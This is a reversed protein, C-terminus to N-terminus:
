RRDEEARSPVLGPLSFSPQRPQSMLLSVLAKTLKSSEPLPVPALAQAMPARSRIQENLAKIEKRTLMEGLKRATTGAAAIPISAGASSPAALMHILASLGDSVGLKGVKRLANRAASGLVIRDKAEIEDPKLGRNPIKDIEQRLTNEINSGSGTKGARRDAMIRKFDATQAASGAAYNANATRLEPSLADLFDDVRGIAIRAAKADSTPRFDPGVQKASEGFATRAARLDDVSMSTIPGIGPGGPQFGEPVMRQLEAFTGPASGHTPRFGKTMLQNEIGASLNAVDPPLIQISKVAPSEWVDVAAQKLDKAAPVPAPGTRIGTPSAARPAVAMMAQDVGPRFDEYMQRPDDKAAVEPNIVGGITHSTKALARGGLSRAPAGILTDLVGGPISLLGKGTDLLGGIASQQPNNLLGKDINEWHSAATRKMEDVVGTGPASMFSPGQVRVIEDALIRAAATDGAADANRLADSLQELSAM